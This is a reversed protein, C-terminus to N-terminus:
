TAHVLQQAMARLVKRITNERKAMDKKLKSITIDKKVMVKELESITDDRKGRDRKLKSITNDKKAMKKEQESITNKKKERDRELESIKNDKKERERKLKSITHKMKAMDRELKIAREQEEELRNKTVGKLENAIWSPNLRPHLTQWRVSHFPQINVRCMNMRYGEEKKKDNEREIQGESDSPWISVLAKSFTDSREPLDDSSKSSPFVLDELVRSETMQLKKQSPLPIDQDEELSKHKRKQDFNNRKNSSDESQTMDAVHDVSQERVDFITQPLASSDSAVRERNPQKCNHRESEAAAIEDDFDDLDLNVEEAVAPCVPDLSQQAM